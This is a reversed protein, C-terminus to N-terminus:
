DDAYRIFNIKTGIRITSPTRRKEQKLKQILKKTENTPNREHRNRATRINVELKAYKPNSKSITDSNYKIKLEEIFKDFEHLYINALLPSVTGGQPVGLESRKFELNVIYGARV